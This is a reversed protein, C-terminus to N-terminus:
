RRLDYGFAGDSAILCHVDRPFLIPVAGCRKGQPVFSYLSGHRQNTGVATCGLAGHVHILSIRGKVSHRATRVGGGRALTCPTHALNPPGPQSTSVSPHRIAPPKPSAFHFAPPPPPPPLHYLSPLHAPRYKRTEPTRVAKAKSLYITQLAQELRSRFYTQHTLTPCNDRQECIGSRGRATGGMRARPPPAPTASHALPPPPATRLIHALRCLGRQWHTWM